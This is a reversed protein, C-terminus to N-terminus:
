RVTSFRLARGEPHPREPTPLSLPPAMVNAIRMTMGVYHHTFRETKKEEVRWRLSREPHPKSQVAYALGARKKRDEVASGRRNEANLTSRWVWAMYGLRNTCGTRRRRQPNHPIGASGERRRSWCRRTSTRVGDFVRLQSHGRQPGPTQETGRAGHHRPRALAHSTARHVAAPFRLRIVAVGEKMRDPRGGRPPTGRNFDQGERWDGGCVGRCTFLDRALRELAPSWPWPSRARLRRDLWQKGGM